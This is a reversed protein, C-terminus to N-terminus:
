HQFQNSISHFAHAHDWTRSWFTRQLCKHLPHCITALLCVEECCWPLMFVGQLSAVIFIGPSSYSVPYWICWQFGHLDFLTIELTARFSINIEVTLSGPISFICCRKKKKKEKLTRLLCIGWLSSHTCLHWLDAVSTHLPEHKVERKAWERPM